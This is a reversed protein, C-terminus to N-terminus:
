ITPMQGGDVRYDAGTVQRALDSALFVITAAVDEPEGLRAMPMQRVNRLFNEIAAERDGDFEAALAEVVPGREWVPTRTPGPSVCNSRIGVSAFENSIAKSLMLIAAKTVSYDIFFSGPIRAADSSVSVIAGRRQQVMHTLAARSARIMSFVNIELLRLWEADSVDFFGERHPAIGVNNVLVDVSGFVEAGRNVATGPGEATSLDVTVPLVRDAGAVDAAASPDVDAAVVRAGEAVFATVTALGIGAGAGTVVVVRDNLGTQM